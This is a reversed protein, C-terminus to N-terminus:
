DPPNGPTSSQRITISKDKSIKVLFADTYYSPYSFREEVSYVLEEKLRQEIREFVTPPISFLVKDEGKPYLTFEMENVRGSDTDFCVLVRLKGENFVYSGFSISELEEAFIRCVNSDNFRIPPMRDRGIKEGTLRNIPLENYIHNGTNTLVVMRNSIHTIRYTIKNAKVSTKGSYYDQFSNELVRDKVSQAPLSFSSILSLVILIYIHRM